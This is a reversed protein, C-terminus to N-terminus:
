IITNRGDSAGFGDIGNNPDLRIVRGRTFRVSPNDGTDLVWLFGRPGRVLGRPLAADVPAGFPSFGGATRINIQYGQYVPSHPAKGGANDGFCQADGNTFPHILHMTFVPNRFRIAPVDFVRLIELDSEDREPLVVQCEDNVVEYILSDGSDITTTCPNPALDTFGDGSCEPLGRLPVKGVLLPNPDPSQVCQGTDPDAIVNHLYGTVRTSRDVVGVVSFADGARLEYRQLTGVCESPPLPAHVCVGDSCALGEEGCDEAVQCTMVCRPPGPQRTPDDECAWTFPSVLKEEEGSDIAAQRDIPQRQDTLTLEYDALEQCQASSDCGDIPTTRLVRRREGLTLHGTFAEQITYQKDSVMLDHCPGLLAEVQNAPLCLGTSGGESERVCEEGISCHADVTCGLLVAIDFPEVGSECFPAAGDVLRTDGGDQLVVGVRVPPGNISVNTDDLSIRGEWIMFFDENRTTMLDPFASERVDAPAGFDLESVAQRQVTQGSDATRTCEVTRGSPMLESHQSAILSNNFVRSVFAARPGFQNNPADANGGQSVCTGSPLDRDNVADRMSHAMTQSMYVAQPDTVDEFDPYHDDDINIVHAFGDSTTVMAFVGSMRSPRRQDTLSLNGDTSFIEIDLPVAGRPMPIGPGTVGARRPPTSAAGVEFCALETPNRSDHVFRPDVQTDCEIQRDVEIVRVTRDTAIAYAFSFQGASGSGLDGSEGGMQVRGSTAIEGIGVDGEVRVVDVGTPMGGADRTVIALLPANETGIYLRGDSALHISAPRPRADLPEPPEADAGGADPVGADAIGADAAGADILPGDTPVPAANGCENACTLAGDTITAVGADDFEIGAVVTYNGAEDVTNPDIVAVANCRPLAMYLLGGPAEPCAAGLEEIPEQAVLKSPEATIPSGDPLVVGRREVSARLEVAANVDIVSLDCTGRNATLLHCGAPDTVISVPLTGVPIANTGPVFDDSDIVVGARDPTSLNLLAVTGTEEQLVFGFLTPPRSVGADPATDDGSAVCGALPQATNGVTGDSLLLDGHCAFAIDTPRDLNTQDFPQIEQSCAALALTGLAAILRARRM